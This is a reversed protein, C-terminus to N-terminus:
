YAWYMGSALSSSTGEFGIYITRGLFFPLGWDFYAASGTASLAGVDPFVFLSTSSLLNFGNGIQFNVVGSTGNLGQNTAMLSLTSSPCYVGQYLSGHNGGQAGSCDPLQATSPLFILSSGSDIFGPIATTSYPSFVTKFTATKTDATFATLGAAPHNNNQSGIGLLMTGTASAAGDAAVSPFSVIVGNNDNALLAVPNSVQNALSVTTGTCSTGTCAYYLQNGASNVCNAGCDQKFLGVGLIGNFGV